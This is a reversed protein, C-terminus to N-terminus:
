GFTIASISFSPPLPGLHSAPPISSPSYTLRVCQPFRRQIVILSPIPCVALSTQIRGSKTMAAWGSPQTPPSTITSPPSSVSSRSAERPFPLPGLKKLVPTADSDPFPPLEALDTKGNWFTAPDNPLNHSPTGPDSQPSIRPAASPAPKSSQKKSNQPM